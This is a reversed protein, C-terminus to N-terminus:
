KTKKLEDVQKMLDVVVDVQAKDLTDATSYNWDYNCYPYLKAHATSRLDDLKREAQKAEEAEVYQAIAIFSRAREWYYSSPAKGSVRASGAIAKPEEEMQVPNYMMKTKVPPLDAKAILIFESDILSAAQSAAYGSGRCVAHEIVKTLRDHNTLANQL